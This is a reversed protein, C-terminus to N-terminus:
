GLRSREFSQYSTSNRYDGQFKRILSYELDQLSEHAAQGQAVDVQAISIRCLFFQLQNKRETQEPLLPVGALNM